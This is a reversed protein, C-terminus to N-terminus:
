KLEVEKSLSTASLYVFENKNYDFAFRIGEVKLNTKGLNKVQFNVQLVEDGEKSNVSLGVLTVAIDIEGEQSKVIPSGLHFLSGLIVGETGINKNLTLYNKDYIIKLACGTLNSLSSNLKLTAIFNSGSQSTNLECNAQRINLEKTQGKTLNTILSAILFDKSISLGVKGEPLSSLLFEGNNDTKTTINKTIVDASTIPNGQATLVKGKISTDGSPPPNVPNEPSSTKGGCGALFFVIILFFYKKTKWLNKGRKMKFDM